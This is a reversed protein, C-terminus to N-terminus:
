TPPVKRKLQAERQIIFLGSAVIITAGILDLFDPVDGWVLFGLVLGLIVAIYKFPSVLSADGYRFADIMGFMAFAFAMGAAFLYLWSSPDPLVWGFPATTLALLMVLALSVGLISVSTESYVLRRNVLDRLASLFSAALPLLLAWSMGGSEPRIVLAAGVFGILVAAGRRWGVREKLVLPALATVFLPNTYVIIIALGLPLLKLATIFCFLAAALLSASILQSRWNRLRLASRGGAIHLLLAIPILAFLGRIFIAEGIPITAVVWKMLADNITLLTIGGLMTAVGRLPADHAIRPDRRPHKQM